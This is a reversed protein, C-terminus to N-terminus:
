AQMWIELSYPVVSVARLGVCRLGGRGGVLFDDMLQQELEAILSAKTTIFTRLHVVFGKLEAILAAKNAKPAGARVLM